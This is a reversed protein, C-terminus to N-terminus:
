ARSASSAASRLLDLAVARVEDHAAKSKTLFRTRGLRLRRREENSLEVDTYVVLPLDRLDDDERLAAVVEFGDGDALNLDLIIVGPARQRAESVAERASGTARVPVGAATLQGLLRTRVVESKDVVLIDSGKESPARDPPKPKSPGKDIARARKVEAAPPPPTYEVLSVADSMVIPSAELAPAAAPQPEVPEKRAPEKRVIPLRFWFTSGKGVESEVGIKGGHREIIVRSIALGLGTGATEPAGPEGARQFRQFLLAKAEEPIGPGEDIVRVEVEADAIRGFIEVARGPNSFKVANALLNELMQVLRDRDGLVEVAPLTVQFRVGLEDALPRVADLASEVVKLLSTPVTQLHVEGAELHELDLVDDVLDIV